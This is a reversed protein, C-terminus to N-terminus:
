IEIHTSSDRCDKLIDGGSATVEYLVVGHQAELGNAKVHEKGNQVHIYQCGHKRIENRTKNEM